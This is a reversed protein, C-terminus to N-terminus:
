VAAATSRAARDITARLQAVDYGQAVPVRVVVLGVQHLVADKSADREIRDARQHSRDDLEIVLFPRVAIRDCLVFDLHQQSIKGFWSMYNDANRPLYVVDRLCVKAFILCDSAAARTLAAFFTRETPTLLSQCPKYPM